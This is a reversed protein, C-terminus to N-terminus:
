RKLDAMQAAVEDNIPAVLRSFNDTFWKTPRAAWWSRDRVGADQAVVQAANYGSAMWSLGAPWVANSMYLGDIPMRYPMRDLIWQDESFDGGLVQGFIAARNIRWIDIPTWQYCDVMRDIFGPAISEMTQHRRELLEERIGGDWGEVGGLERLPYPLVEEGRIVRYSEPSVASEDVVGYNLIEIVQGFSRWTDNHLMDVLYSKAGDWSDFARYILLAQKILPDFALSGWPVDGRILWSTVTSGRMDMKWHKMKSALRSDFSRMVPEGILNLTARAGVNSIVGLRAEIREGPFAADDALVVAAAKAGEVEITAVPCGTNLTGGNDLFCRVVANVMAENGGIGLGTTYYLSLAVGLAGQGRALPAGHEHLALPSVITQRVRDAEFTREILEPGTMTWLEDLPRALAYACLDLVREFKEADPHPSFFALHNMEELTEDVRRQIAVMTEADRVSHLAFNRFTQEPDYCILCNTGDRHTTALAVPSARYRFGYKELELDEIAPSNGCFNIAAHPSDLTEPWTEHTACFAAVESNAELVLVDLGAKQLYAASPLGGAIGGGIVIVDFSRM